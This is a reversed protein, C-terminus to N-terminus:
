EKDTLLIKRSEERGYGQIILYNDFFQVKSFATQNPTNVMGKFTQYHINNKKVYAGDHNHGNFFFKVVPHQELIQILERNNWLNHLDDEPLLPFHCFLGVLQNERSAIQLEKEIWLLQKRSIAGNWPRVYPRKKQLQAFMLDREQIQLSDSSAYMSLDTGDIVLFRWHDYVFSYYPLQMGLKPLIKPKLSDAVSFEHNGLVHYTTTEWQKWIPLVTDFSAFDKDIFDGLHIGFALQHQNLTDIAAQLRAASKKYFRKETAACDCYQCDAVVGIEFLPREPAKSCGLLVFFLFLFRLM